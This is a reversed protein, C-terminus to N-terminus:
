HQHNCKWINLNNLKRAKTKYKTKHHNAKDKPHEKKTPTLLDNQILGCKSCFLDGHTEDYILPTAKCEKCRNNFFTRLIMNQKIYEKLKMNEVDYKKICLQMKQAILYLKKINNKYM